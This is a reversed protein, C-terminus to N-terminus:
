VAVRRSTRKLSAPSSVLSAAATRLMKHGLLCGLISTPMSLECSVMPLAFNMSALLHTLSLAPIQPLSLSFPSIQLLYSKLASLFCLSKLECGLFHMFAAGVGVIKM